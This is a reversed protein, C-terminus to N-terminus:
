PPKSRKCHLRWRRRRSNKTVAEHRLVQARDYGPLASSTGILQDDAFAMSHCRLHAAAFPSLRM